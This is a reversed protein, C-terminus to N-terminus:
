CLTVRRRRAVLLAAMGIAMLLLSEPEPVSGGANVNAKILLTVDALDASYGSANHGLSALIITDNFVGLTTADFAVSLGGYSDGAALNAFPNFGNFLFNDTDILNFLGDLYDALGLM